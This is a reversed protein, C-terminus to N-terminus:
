IGDGGTCIIKDFTKKDFFKSSLNYLENQEGKSIASYSGAIYSLVYMILTAATNKIDEFMLFDFDKYETSEEISSGAFKKSRKKSSMNYAMKTAQAKYTEDGNFVIKHLITSLQQSNFISMSCSRVFAMADSKSAFLKNDKADDIIGKTLEAITLDYNEKTVVEYFNTIIEKVFGLVSFNDNIEERCQKYRIEARGSIGLKSNEDKKNYYEFELKYNKYCISKRFRKIPQKSSFIDDNGTAYFVSFMACLMYMPKFITEYKINCFDYRFDIRKLLLDSMGYETILRQINSDFCLSSRNIEESIKEADIKYTHRGGRKICSRVLEKGTTASPKCETESNVNITHVGFHVTCEVIGMLIESREDKSKGALASYIDNSHTDVVAKLIPSKRMEEIEPCSYIELDKKDTMKLRWNENFGQIKM